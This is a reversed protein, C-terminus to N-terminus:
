ATAFALLDVNVQEAAENQLWTVHKAFQPILNVLTFVLKGQFLDDASGRLAIARPDLFMVRGYEVLRDVCRLPM